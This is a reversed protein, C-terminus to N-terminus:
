NGKGARALGATLFGVVAGFSAAAFVSAIWFWM